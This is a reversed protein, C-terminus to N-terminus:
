FKGTILFVFLSGLIGSSAGIMAGFYLDRRGRGKTREELVADARAEREDIRGIEEGLAQQRDKIEEMERRLDAAVEDVYDKASISM